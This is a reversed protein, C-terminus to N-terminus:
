QILSELLKDHLFDDMDISTIDHFSLFSSQLNLQVLWDEIKPCDIDSERMLEVTTGELEIGAQLYYRSDTWLLAQDLTVVATGAEGTFSTLWCVETWHSAMYESAHPDTSPVIYASLGEQQMLGRLATLKDQVTM